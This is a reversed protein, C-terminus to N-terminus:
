IGRYGLAICDDDVCKITYSSGSRILEIEKGCRPCKTATKGYRLFDMGTSDLINMEQETMKIEDIVM